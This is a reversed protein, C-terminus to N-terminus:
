GTVSLPSPPLDYRMASLLLRSNACRSRHKSATDEHTTGPGFTTAEYRLQEFGSRNVTVPLDSRSRGINNGASDERDVTGVLPWPTAGISSCPVM